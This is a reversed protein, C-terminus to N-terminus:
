LTRSRVLDPMSGLRYLQARGSSKGYIDDAEDRDDTVKVVKSTLVLFCESDGKVERETFPETKINLVGEPEDGGAEVVSCLAFSGHLETAALISQAASAQRAYVFVASVEFGPMWEPRCKAKPVFEHCLVPRLALKWEEGEMM